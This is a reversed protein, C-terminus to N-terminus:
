EPNHRWTSFYWGKQLFVSDEVYHSFTTANTVFSFNRSLTRSNKKILRWIHLLVKMHSQWKCSLLITNNMLSYKVTRHFLNWAVRKIETQGLLMMFFKSQTAYSCKCTPKEASWPVSTIGLCTNNISLSTHWFNIVCYSAFDISCLLGQSVLLWKTPWSIKQVELFSFIWWRAWLLGGSVRDMPM